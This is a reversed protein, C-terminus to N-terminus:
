RGLLARTLRPAPAPLAPPEFAGPDELYARFAAVM